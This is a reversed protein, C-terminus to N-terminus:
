IEKVKIKQKKIPGIKHKKFKKKLDPTLQEFANRMVDRRRETLRKYINKQRKTTFHITGCNYCELYHVSLRKGKANTASMYCKGFKHWGKACHKKSLRKKRLHMLRADMTIKWMFCDWKFNDWATMKRKIIDM